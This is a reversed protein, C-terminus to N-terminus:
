RFREPLWHDLMADLRGNAKWKDIAANAASLLSPNRPAVAWAIDQQQLPYPIVELTGPYKSALDLIAALDDIYVSYRNLELDKPVTDYDSVFVARARPCHRRVFTEAYTDPLVGVSTSTSLVHSASAYSRAWGARTVAVLPNSLYPKCFRMQYARAPTVTLGSMLIDVKGDRLADFLEGFDLPVIELGCGLEDALAAAFEAELGTPKGDADAMCIPPYNPAFGVRLTQLDLPPISETDHTCTACGAGALVALVAAIAAFFRFPNSKM